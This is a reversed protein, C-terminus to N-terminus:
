DDSFTPYRQTLLALYGFAQVDYRLWYVLVDRLGSHLNGLILAYFWALFAVIEAVYMLLTVVILAPVALLLRFFITLRSQKEAPAIAVDIPYGAAGSFAPFPDAALFWYARVHTQYRLYSAIFSHLGDPIRGAFIGVLWAFFIAFSVVIGWLTLWILHPMVLLIRFFVTLRNRQLDDTVILHIPHPAPRDPELVSLQESM